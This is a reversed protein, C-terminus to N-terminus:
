WMAAWVSCVHIPLCFLLLCFLHPLLNPFLFPCSSPSQAPSAFLILLSTHGYPTLRLEHQTLLSHHNTSSTCCDPPPVIKNVASRSCSTVRTIDLQRKCLSVDSTVRHLLMMSSRRLTLAISNLGQSSLQVRHKHLWLFCMNLHLTGTPILLPAACSLFSLQTGFTCALM